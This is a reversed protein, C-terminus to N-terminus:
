PNYVQPQEPALLKASPFRMCETLNQDFILALMALGSDGPHLGEVMLRRLKCRKAIRQRVRRVQKDRSWRKVM